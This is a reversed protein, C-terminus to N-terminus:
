MDIKFCQDRALPVGCAARIHAGLWQACQDFDWCVPGLDLPDQIDEDDVNEKEEDEKKNEDEDGEDRSGETVEQCDTSESQEPGRAINYIIGVSSLMLRITDIKSVRRAFRGTGFLTSHIQNVDEPQMGWTRQDIERWLPGVNADTMSLKFALKWGNHGARPANKSSEVDPIVLSATTVPNRVCYLMTCDFEVAESRTRNHNHYKWYVDITAPNSPSFIRTLVTVDIPRQM